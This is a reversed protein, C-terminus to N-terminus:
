NNNNVVGPMSNLQGMVFSSTASMSAVMADMANYQAFLRTEYKDMKLTFAEMSEDLRTMQKNYGEVRSDVLGSSETYNKIFSDMSAAFGPSSDSGVFFQQVAAPNTSLQNDLKEQDFSLVGYRDASVGLQTLSLDGGNGTDYSSSLFSRLKSTVSRLMSDGSLIGSAEDEGGGKTMKKVLDTLENYSSVFSKLGEEVIKNNEEIGLSSKEDVGHSKLVDITVGQIADKFVNTSSTLEIAGDVTISADKAPTLETLSATTLDSVRGTAGSASVNIANTIGTEKASLVLRQAGGAETIITATTSTNDSSDNIKNRIDALTDTTDVVIDFTSSADATAFTLTGGGVAETDTFTSSMSKHAQALNNVKVDFQGLQATTDSSVKIFEDTGTATSEKFSKAKSLDEMSTQLKDLASKFAGMASISTTLDSKKDTMRTEFPLKEADVLGNVIDSVPVGSGIGTFSIGSM